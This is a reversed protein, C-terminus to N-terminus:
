GTTGPASLHLLADADEHRFDNILDVLLLADKM